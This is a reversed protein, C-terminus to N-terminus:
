LTLKSILNIRVEARIRTIATEVPRFIGGIITGFSEWGGARRPPFCGREFPVTEGHDILNNDSSSKVAAQWIRGNVSRIRM